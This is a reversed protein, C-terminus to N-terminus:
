NAGGYGFAILDGDFHLMDDATKIGAHDARHMSNVPKKTTQIKSEMISNATPILANLPPVHIGTIMHFGAGFM